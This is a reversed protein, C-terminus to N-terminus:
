VMPGAGVNEYLERIQKALKIAQENRLDTRLQESLGSIIGVLLVIISRQITRHASRLKCGIDFGHKYDNRMVNTYTDLLEAFQDQDMSKAVAYASVEADVVDTKLAYDHHKIIIKDRTM